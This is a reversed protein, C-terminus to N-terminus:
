QFKKAGSGGLFGQSPAAGVTKATPIPANEPIINFALGATWGIAFAGGLPPAFEAILGAIGYVIAAGMFEAPTPPMVNRKFDRYVILVVAIAFGLFVFRKGNM